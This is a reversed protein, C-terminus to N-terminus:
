GKRHFYGIVEFSECCVLDFKHIGGKLQNDGGAEGNCNLVGNARLM